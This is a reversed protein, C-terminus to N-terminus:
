FGETEPLADQPLDAHTIRKESVPDREQTEETKESGANFEDGIECSFFIQSTVIQTQIRNDQDRLQFEYTGDVGLAHSDPAPRYIKNVLVGHAAGDSLLASLPFALLYPIFM